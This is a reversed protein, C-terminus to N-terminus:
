WYQPPKDSIRQMKKFYDAAQERVFDPPSARQALKLADYLRPADMLEVRYGRIEAVSATGEGGSQFKSTTVYIGETAGKLLLAGVFSRIQEVSISRKTRKVQVGLQRGDKELVVDIGGDGSYATVVADYGLSRFVSGVTEEFLRPHVKFRSEFKAVLYRRVEEIPLTVDKLDLEKLSGAAGEVVRRTAHPLTVRIQRDYQDTAKWWGCLTCQEITRWGSVRDSLRSENLKSEGAPDDDHHESFMTTMPSNCFLCDHASWMEDRAVDGYEWITMTEEWDAL